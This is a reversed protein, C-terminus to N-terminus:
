KEKAAAERIKGITRHLLNRVSQYNMRMMGCIENYSLEEIFRYYLVERQRPTIIEMLRELRLQWALLEESEIMKAEASFETDFVPEISDINYHYIEKKFLNFLTNKMAILMYVKVNDVEKLRKRGLYLKAFLDQVCDKVMEVDDTFHLGYELLKAAYASYLSAFAEDSGMRFENWLEKHQSM